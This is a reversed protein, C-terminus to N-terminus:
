LRLLAIIFPISRLKIFAMLQLGVALMGSLQSLSFAKEGRLHHVLSPHGSKGRKNWMPNSTRSVILCSFSIFPIQIM